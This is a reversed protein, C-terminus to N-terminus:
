KNIKKTRVQYLRNPDRQPRKMEKATIIVANKIKRFFNKMQPNVKHPFTTIQVQLLGGLAPRGERRLATRLTAM